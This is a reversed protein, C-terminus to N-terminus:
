VKDIEKIDSVVYQQIDNVISRSEEIGDHIICTLESNLQVAYLGEISKADLLLNRYKIDIDVSYKSVKDVFDSVEEPAKFKVNVTTM